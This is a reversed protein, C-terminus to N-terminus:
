TPQSWGWKLRQPLWFPIMPPAPRGHWRPRSPTNPFSRSSPLCRSLWHRPFTSSRRRRPGRFFSPAGVIGLGYLLALVPPELEVGSFRQIMGPVGAAILLGLWTISNRKGTEISLDDVGLSRCSLCAAQPGMNPLDTPASRSSSDMSETPISWSYYCSTHRPSACSTLGALAVGASRAELMRTTSPDRAGLLEGSIICAISTLLPLGFPPLCSSTV